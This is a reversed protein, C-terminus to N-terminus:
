KPHTVSDGQSEITTAPSSNMNRAAAHAHPAPRNAVHARDGDPTLAYAQNILDSLTRGLDLNRRRPPHSAKQM